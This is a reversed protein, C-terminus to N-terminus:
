PESQAHYSICYVSLHEGTYRQAVLKVDVEGSHRTHDSSSSPFPKTPSQIEAPEGEGKQAATSHYDRFSQRVHTMLSDVDNQKIVVMYCRGRRSLHKPLMAIFRDIVVRGDPGGAWAACKAGAVDGTRAAHAATHLEDVSTPVYPPNFIVVDFTVPPHSPHAGADPSQEFPSFLDGHVLNLCLTDDNTGGTDIDRAGVSVPHTQQQSRPISSTTYAFSSSAKSTGMHKSMTRTWTLSAAELATMSIDVAYFQPLSSPACSEYERMGSSTPEDTDCNVITHASRGDSTSCSQSMKDSCLLMAVHTIVAGSGCGIEVVRLASGMEHIDGHHKDIAEMLLFTDAEPEYVVDRFRKEEICHFYEPTVYHQAM